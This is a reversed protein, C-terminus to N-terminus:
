VLKAVAPKSTLLEKLQLKVNNSVLTQTPTLLKTLIESNIKNKKSLKYYKNIKRVCSIIAQKTHKKALFSFCLQKMYEDSSTIDNKSTTEILKNAIENYYSAVIESMGPTKIIRKLGIKIDNNKTISSLDVSKLGTYCQDFTAVMQRFRINRNEINIELQPKKVRLDKKAFVPTDMYSKTRKTLNKRISHDPLYLKNIINWDTNQMPWVIIDIKSNTKEKIFNYFLEKVKGDYSPYMRDIIIVPKKTESNVAYRVICRKIMKSGLNNINKGTTLYIIGVCPDILSGVLQTKFRGSWSQCSVIGRMSMTAIDWLGELGNSSFVIKYDKTPVNDISFQKFSAITELKPFNIGLRESKSIECVKNYIRFLSENKRFIVKGTNDAIDSSLKISVKNNENYIFSHYYHQDKVNALIGRWYLLKNIKAAQADNIPAHLYAANAFRNFMLEGLESILSEASTKTIESNDFKCTESCNPLGISPFVKSVKTISKLKEHEALFKPLKENKLFEQINTQM